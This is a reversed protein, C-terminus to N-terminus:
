VEVEQAGLCAHGALLEEWQPYGSSYILSVSVTQAWGNPIKVCDGCGVQGELAHKTTSGVTNKRPFAEAM